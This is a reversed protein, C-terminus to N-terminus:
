FLGSWSITVTRFYTLFYHGPGLVYGHMLRNIQELMSVGTTIAGIM